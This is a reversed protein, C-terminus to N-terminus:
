EQVMFISAAYEASNNPLNNVLICLQIDCPTIVKKINSLYHQTQQKKVINQYNLVTM